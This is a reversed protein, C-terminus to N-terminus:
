ATGPFAQAAPRLSVGLAVLMAAVVAMALFAAQYGGAGGGASAAISGVFTAGILRGVSTLNSLLGQAAGREGPECNDLIVMRLPAGLVGGMGASGVINALLFTATTMTLVGFMAVSIAILVLSFCVVARSGVRNILRGAV